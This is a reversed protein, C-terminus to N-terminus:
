GQNVEDSEREPKDLTEKSFLEESESLTRVIVQDFTERGKMKKVLQRYTEESVKISKVM